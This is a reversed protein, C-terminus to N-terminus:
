FRQLIASGVACYLCKKNNCYENKLQILGQSQLASKSIPKLSEFKEIISNHEPEVETILAIIEETNIAGLNKSYSFKVPIITNIILLDIFNETTSKNVKRSTKQFTYHTEWFSSTHVSFLDYYDQKTKAEIIKSFLNKNKVYVQALQSLRITPFNPPRLRFFQFPMIHHQTLGFKQCLLMYETKLSKFYADEVEVDLLGSQGFLVAELTIPKNQIKRIIKFDIYAALSFFAEGNVKLGFNKALLKFLVAEWDNNSAKLLLQMDNAKRELREFFLRELWNQLIFDDVTAFDQECNIWRQTKSFLQRYGNLASKSVIDKLELTPIESNDKRFIDVDHEWVVHLIVNDYAPDIEHHHVYWDSAKVHIEVNGAWLQHDINLQANFFDPGSNFNHQGVQILQIAEGKVTQLASDDFKKYKWLYHLFDEQM